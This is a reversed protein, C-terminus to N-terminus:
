EIGIRGFWEPKWYRLGLPILLVVSVVSEFLIFGWSGALRPDRGLTVYLVVSPISGLLTGLLINRWGVRSLGLFYNCLSYPAVHLLRLGVVVMLGNHGLREDLRRLSALRGEVRQRFWGGGLWRFFGAGAAAGITAGALCLLAGPVIGLVYGSLIQIWWVPLALVACLLYAAIVLLPAALPYSQAWCRAEEGLLHPHRFLTGGRETGLSWALAAAIAALFLILIFKRLTAHAMPM